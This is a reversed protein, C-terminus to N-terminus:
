GIVGSGLAVVLAATGVAAVLWTALTWAIARALSM